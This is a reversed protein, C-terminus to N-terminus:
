DQAQKKKGRIYEEIEERNFRLARGVKFSPIQGKKAQKYVTIKTVRLLKAVEEATLVDQKSM